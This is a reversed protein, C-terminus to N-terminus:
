SEVLLFEIRLEDADISRERIVGLRDEDAPKM